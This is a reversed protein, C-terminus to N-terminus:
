AHISKILFIKVETYMYASQCRVGPAIAGGTMAESSLRWRCNYKCNSVM